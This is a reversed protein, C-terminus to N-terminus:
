AQAEGSKNAKALGCVEAIPPMAAAIEDFTIPMADVEEPTKGIVLAFLEGVSGLMDETVEGRWASMLPIAKKLKGYPLPEIDFEVRGLTIKM